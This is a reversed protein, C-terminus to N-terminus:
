YVYQISCDAQKVIYKIEVKNKHLRLIKEKKQNKYSPKFKGNRMYENRVKYIYPISADKVINIIEEVIMDAKLCSIIKQRKSTM